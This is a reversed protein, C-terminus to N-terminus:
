QFVQNANVGQSRAVMAASAGPDLTEEVVHRREEKSCYKRQIAPEVTPTIDTM